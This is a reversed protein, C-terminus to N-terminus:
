RIKAMRWVSNTAERDAVVFLAAKVQARTAIDAPCACSTGGAFGRFHALSEPWRASKGRRIRQLGEPEFLRCIGQFLYGIQPGVAFVRSKFDGLIPLAGSRRPLIRPIFAM